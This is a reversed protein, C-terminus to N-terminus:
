TGVRRIDVTGLDNLLAAANQSSTTAGASACSYLKTSIEGSVVFLMLPKPFFKLFIM